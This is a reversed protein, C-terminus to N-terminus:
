TGIRPDISFANCFANRTKRMHRREAELNLRDGALVQQWAAFLFM